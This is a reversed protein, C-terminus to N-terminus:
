QKPAPAINLGSVRGARDFVVRVAVLAKEYATILEIAEHDRDSKQQVDTVTRFAGFVDAVQTHLEALRAPPLQARMTPDFRVAALDFRGANFNTFLDRAAAELKPDAKVIPNILVTGVRGEYDFLVRVSAPGKEFTSILEIVPLGGEKRQKAESVFRYAGLKADIEAKMERLMSLPVATRLSEDFDKAALEFRGAAFNELLERAMLEYPSHNTIRPNAAFLATLVLAAITNVFSITASNQTAPSSKQTASNDRGPLEVVRAVELEPSIAVVLSWRDVILSL